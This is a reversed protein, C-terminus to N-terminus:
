HSTLQDYIYFFEVPNRVFFYFGGAAQERAQEALQEKSPRDKGVKIELKVSKGRITAMIDATGKRTTSPIYRGQLYRGASSVRTANGGTWNIYNICFQTLGNATEVKPFNAPGTYFGDKVVNPTHKLTHQYHATNYRIRWEPYHKM